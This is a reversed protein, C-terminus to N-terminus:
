DDELSFAVKRSIGASFGRQVLHRYAKAAEGKLFRGSVRERAVEEWVVELAEVATRAVSREVGHHVLKAQIQAPGWEKRALIQSQLEAFRADDLWGRSAYEDLVEDVLDSPLEKKLLKGRLEKRSYDRRALFMAAAADVDEKSFDM